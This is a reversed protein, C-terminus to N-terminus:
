LRLGRIAQPCPVLEEGCWPCFAPEAAMTTVPTASEDGDDLWGDPYNVRVVEWVYPAHATWTAGVDRAYRRVAWGRPMYECRHEEYRRGYPTRRTMREEAEARAARTEREVKGMSRRREALNRMVEAEVEARDVLVRKRQTGM